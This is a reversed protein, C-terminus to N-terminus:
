ESAGNASAAGGNILKLVYDPKLPLDRTKAGFPALADMVANVMAAPAAIQGGEGMGKYGGVSLPSPSELHAVEIAPLDTATPVLYDMYTTSLPQGDANYVLEEFMAGGVGQAIAGQVQGDVILPNILTGCDEVAVIRELKVTGTEADVEVLVAICGNSYTCPPDYFRTSTPLSEDERDKHSWYAAYAVESIAKSRDSAGVVSIRGDGIELDDPDVELMKGAVRFLHERVDSAARTITAGAIVASRSAYTGLGYPTSATDGHLIAVDEVNVGLEDAAVQAFSTEHGQGHSSVSVAVTVKGSPDMTVTSNDHSSEPMGSQASADSGWATGEVYSSFGIGIYRGEKRLREQEARFEDYKVAEAVQELSEHYTGSDYVQNTCSTYPFEDSNILNKRRFELVDIGLDRAIEEFLVERVTNSATWGVGRYAAIPPKNSLGQIIEEEYIDLRYPGTLAKAACVPELIAADSYAGGDGIFVGKAGLLEGDEAVAFEIDILQEKAQSACMLHDRRDEIWRVPRGLKLSLFPTVLEEPCCAMKLGFGGGVEPAIVRVRPEPFNLHVAILSRLLHPMQTSSWVTLTGYAPDYQALVGRAEMPAAGYRNHHFRASYTRYADKFAKDVDGHTEKSQFVVNSSLDDTLVPAGDGIAEEIDVVPRLVEYDVGASLREAADDAVYANEAVVVAVAEGVFRVTKPAIVHQTTRLLGQLGFRGRLPSVGGGPSQSGAEGEHAVDKGTFVKVSDALDGLVSKDIGRINAYAHPSRVFVAHMTRPLAIDAVYRAAGTLYRPDEVRKVRSGVWKTKRSEAVAM